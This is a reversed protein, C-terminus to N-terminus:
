RNFRLLLLSFIVHDESRSGACFCVVFALYVHVVADVCMERNDTCDRLYVCCFNLVSRCSLMLLYNVHGNYM